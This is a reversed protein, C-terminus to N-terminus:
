DLHGTELPMSLGTTPWITKDNPILSSGLFMSTAATCLTSSKMVWTM